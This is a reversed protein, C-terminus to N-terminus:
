EAAHLKKNAKAGWTRRAYYAMGWAIALTLLPFCMAIIKNTM